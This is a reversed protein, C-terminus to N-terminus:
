PKLGKRLEISSRPYPISLIGYILKYRNSYAINGIILCDKAPRGSLGHVEGGGSLKTIEGRKGLVAM